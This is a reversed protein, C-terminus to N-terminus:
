SSVEMLEEIREFNDFNNAGARWYDNGGDVFIERCKCYVFHHTFKSEIVDGCVKCRAKNKYKKYYVLEEKDPM